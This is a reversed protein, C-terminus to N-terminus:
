SLRALVMTMDDPQEADGIWEKVAAFSRAAIDALPLIQNRRVLQELREEGFDVTDREPETLGDSYLVLLDGHNMQVTEEDYKLGDMLGVVSGGCDLHKTEGNACLLLPPLHGGNSYTLKKTESDYCALFLTAYKASQTSTLLHQNLLAMLRGPSVNFEPEPGLGLDEPKPTSGSRYARVASHLSAMLLAASIGKGSIDGLALYLKSNGYPIFDYYDGGVTRAPLCTGYIEFNPLDISTHPFLNNQVEQAIKLENQIRDKEREASIQEHMLRDLSGTMTNFATALAALQDRRKVPIRHQLNGKDVQRTAVYMDGIAGTITGSLLIAMLIALLELIGFLAATSILAVKVILGTQLSSAFLAKYLISPRSSVIM